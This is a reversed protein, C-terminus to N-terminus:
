ARKLVYRLLSDVETHVQCDSTLLVTGPCPSTPSLCPRCSTVTRSRVFHLMCCFLSTWYNKRCRESVPIRANMNTRSNKGGYLFIFSPSVVISCISLAKAFVSILVLELQRPVTLLNVRFCQPHRRVPLMKRVRMYWFCRSPSRPSSFKAVRKLVSYRFAEPRSYGIDNNNPFSLLSCVTVASQYLVIMRKM